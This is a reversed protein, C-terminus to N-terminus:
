FITAEVVGIVRFPRATYRRSDRSSHHVCAPLCAPLATSRDISRYSRFKTVSQLCKCPPPPHRHRPAANEGRPYLYLFSFFFFFSPFSTYYLIPFFFFFFITYLSFHLPVFIIRPAHIGNFIGDLQRKGIAGHNRIRKARGGGQKGSLM